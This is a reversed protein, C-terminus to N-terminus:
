WFFFFIRRAAAARPRVDGPHPHTFIPLTPLSPHPPLFVLPPLPSAGAPTPHPAEGGGWWRATAGAPSRHLRGALPPPHGGRSPRGGGGCACGGGGFLRTTAGSAAWLCCPPPPAATAATEPHDTPLCPTQACPRRRRTPRRLSHTPPPTTAPLYRPPFHRAARLPSTGPSPPHHSPGAGATPALTYVPTLTPM